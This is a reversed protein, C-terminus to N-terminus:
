NVVSPAYNEQWLIVEKMKHTYIYTHIYTHIIVPLNYNTLFLILKKDDHRKIIKM